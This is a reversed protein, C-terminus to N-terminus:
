LGVCRGLIDRRSPANRQGYKRRRGGVLGGVAFVAKRRCALVSAVGINRTKRGRGMGSGRFLLTHTNTSSDVMREMMKASGEREQGGGERKGKQKKKSRVRRTDEFWTEVELESLKRVGGWPLKVDSNRGFTNVKVVYDGACARVLALVVLTPLRSVFLPQGLKKGRFM